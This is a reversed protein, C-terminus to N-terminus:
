KEFFCVFFVCGLGLFLCVYLLFVFSFCFCRFLSLIIFLYFSRVPVMKNLYIWKDTILRSLLGKRDNCLQSTNTVVYSEYTENQGRDRLGKYSTVM